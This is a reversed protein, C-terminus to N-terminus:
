PKYKMVWIDMSGKNGSVDGDNSLTNGIVAYSGDGADIAVGFADFNLGGFLKSWQKNGSADVKLIWADSNGRNGSVDGDNSAASGAFIYGGDATKNVSQFGDNGSGGYAKQWQKNGGADLKLMWGDQMGHNGSVDGSNSRTNGAVAYGGDDTVIISFSYDDASGGFLKSWVKNGDGDIKMVLIDETGGNHGSLDGDNSHTRGAIVLSGDAKAAIAWAHDMLTGGFAKAWVKTGNADIAIVMADSGGHNGNIDGNNSGTFGAIAYGGNVTATISVPNDPGNGGYTKSWVKNGNADIKMVWADADLSTKGIIDGDMSTTSGTFIYGGDTTAIMALAEDDGSGGFLKTWVKNGGADLKMIWADNSGHNNTVDGNNSVTTAAVVYGGDSTRVISRIEEFLTGGYLRGSSQPLTAAAQTVTITLPQVTTSGVPTIAITASRATTSTNALLGTVTVTANGNGNTTSVSLWNGSIAITWNINSQVTFSNTAGVTNNLILTTSDAKLQTPNSPPPDQDSKQCSAMIFLVPVLSYLLTKM